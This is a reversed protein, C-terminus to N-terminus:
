RDDIFHNFANKKINIYARIYINKLMCMYMCVNICVYM